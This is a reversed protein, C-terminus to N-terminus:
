DRRRRKIYIVGSLTGLSLFFLVFATLNIGDGTAPSIGTTTVQTAPPPPPDPRQPVPRTWVEWPVEITQTGIETAGEQNVWYFEVTASIVTTGAAHARAYGPNNTISLVAPNSSGWVVSRIGEETGEPQNGLINYRGVHSISLQASGGTYMLYPVADWNLSSRPTWLGRIEFTPETAAGATAEIEEELAEIEENLSDIMVDTPIILNSNELDLNDLEECLVDEPEDPENLTTGTGEGYLTEEANDCEYGLDYAMVVQGVSLVAILVLAVLSMRKRMKKM